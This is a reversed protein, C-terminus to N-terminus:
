RADDALPDIRLRVFGAARMSTIAEADAGAARSRARLPDLTEKLTSALAENHGRKLSSLYMEGGVAGPWRALWTTFPGVASDPRFSATRAPTSTDIGSVRAVSGAVFVMWVIGALAGFFRNHVPKAELKRALWLGIIFRAYVSTLAFPLFFGVITDGPSSVGWDRLAAALVDCTAWGALSGLGVASCGAALKWFGKRAGLYAGFALAIMALIDLAHM